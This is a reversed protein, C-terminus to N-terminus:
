RSDSVKGSLVKNNDNLTKLVSNFFTALESSVNMIKMQHIM